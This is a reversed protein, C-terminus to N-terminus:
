NLGLRNMEEFGKSDPLGIKNKLFELKKDNQEIEVDMDDITDGMINIAKEFVKSQILANQGLKSETLFSEKKYKEITQSLENQIKPDKKIIEKFEAM